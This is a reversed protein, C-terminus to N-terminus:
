MTTDPFIISNFERVDSISQVKPFPPLKDLSIQRSSDILGPACSELAKDVNVALSYETEEVLQAETLAVEVIPWDFTKLSRKKETSVMETRRSADTKADIQTLM